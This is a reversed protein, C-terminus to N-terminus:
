HFYHKFDIHYGNRRTISNQVGHLSHV